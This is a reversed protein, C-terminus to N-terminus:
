RRKSAVPSFEDGDNKSKPMDQPKLGMWNVLWRATLSERLVLEIECLHELAPGYGLPTWGVVATFKLSACLPITTQQDDRFSNTVKLVSLKTRGEKGQVQLYTTTSGASMSKRTGKGSKSLDAKAGSTLDDYAKQMAKANDCVVTAYLLDTFGDFLAIGTPMKLGAGPKGANCDMPPREQFDLGAAKAEIKDKKPLWPPESSLLALKRQGEMALNCVGLVDVRPKLFPGQLEYTKNKRIRKKIESEFAPQLLKARGWMLLGYTARWFRGHFDQLGGLAISAVLESYEECTRITGVRRLEIFARVSEGRLLWRKDDDHLLAFQGYDQDPAGKTLEDMSQHPMATQHRALIHTTNEVKKQDQKSKKMFDTQEEGAGAHFMKALMAAGKLKSLAAKNSIKGTDDKPGLELIAPDPKRCLVKLANDEVDEWLDKFPRKPQNVYVYCDQPREMAVGLYDIIEQRLQSWKNRLPAGNTEMEKLLENILPCILKEGILRARNEVQTRVAATENLYMRNALCCADVRNPLPKTASAQSGKVVDEFMPHTNDKFAENSRGAPPLNYEEHKQLLVTPPHKKDDKDVYDFAGWPAHVPNRPYEDFKWVSGCWKQLKPKGGVFGMNVFGDCRAKLKKLNLMAEVEPWLPLTRGDYGHSVLVGFTPGKKGLMMRLLYQLMQSCRSPLISQSEMVLMPGTLNKWLFRCRVDDPILPAEHGPYQPVFKRDQKFLQQFLQIRDGRNVRGQADLIHQDDFGLECLANCRAITLDNATFYQGKGEQEEDSDVDAQQAEWEAWEEETYEPQQQKIPKGKKDVLPPLKPEGSRMLLDRIREAGPGRVKRPDPGDKIPPEGRGNWDLVDQITSWSLPKNVIVGNYAPPVREADPGVASLMLPTRKGYDQINPHAHLLLLTKVMVARGLRAAVHLPTEQNADRANIDAKRGILIKMMDIGVVEDSITGAAFHVARRGLPDAYNVNATDPPELSCLRQVEECSGRSVAVLMAHGSALSYHSAIREDDTFFIAPSRDSPLMWTALARIVPYHRCRGAINLASCGQLDEADLPCGHDLLPIVVQLHGRMAALHIPTNGGADVLRLDANAEFLMELAPVASNVAGINASVFHVARWGAYLGHAPAYNIGFCMIEPNGKWPGNHRSNLIESLSDKGEILFEGQKEFTAQLPALLVQGRQMDDILRKSGEEHVEDLAQRITLTTKYGPYADGQLDPLHKLIEPRYRFAARRVTGTDYGWWNWLVHSVQEKLFLLLDVDDQAVAMHIQERKEDLRKEYQAAAALLIKKWKPPSTIRLQAARFLKDVYKQACDRRVEEPPPTKPPTPPEETATEEGSSTDEEDGRTGATSPREEDSHDSSSGHSASGKSGKSRSSGTSQKSRQRKEKKKKKPPYGGAESSSPRSDGDSPVAKLRALLGQM